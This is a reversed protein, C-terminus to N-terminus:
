CYKNQIRIEDFADEQVIEIKGVKMLELVALFTVIIMVRSSQIELLERFGFQSKERAFAELFEMREALSVEEKEIKGFGSRVRDIKNEQKRMVQHFIQNLKSLTVGSLLESIDVPEEFEAVEPPVTAEKYLTYQAFDQKERLEYSMSKYMKYELLQLVLEARPDVEEEETPDAPLLFRAKIELLTAAMVLFESMVDLNQEKMQYIYELYQKTIEIIPIDYINVKNKELLHLLLDLPGEFIELKVQLDM